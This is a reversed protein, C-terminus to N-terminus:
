ISSSAMKSVFILVMLKLMANLVVSNRLFLFCFFNWLLNLVEYDICYKNRENSLKKEVYILAVYRPGDIMRTAIEDERM